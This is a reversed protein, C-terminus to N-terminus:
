LDPTLTVPEDWLKFAKDYEGDALLKSETQCGFCDLLYEIYVMLFRNGGLRAHRHKNILRLWLEKDLMGDQSQVYSRAANKMEDTLLM